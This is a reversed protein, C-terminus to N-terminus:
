LRHNSLIPITVINQIEQDIDTTCTSQVCNQIEPSNQNVDSKARMEKIHSFLQRVTSVTVFQGDKILGMNM